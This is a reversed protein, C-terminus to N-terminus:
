PIRLRVLTCDDEFLGSASQTLVRGLLDDVTWNPSQATQAYLDVFRNLPWPKGDALTLEFAGDSYLLIETGPPVTYDRVEFRADEFVGVPISDAALRTLATGTALALAPPHGASSFRLRRSSAQYVGYWGTFYNGDHNEMQFLRNLETLVEDPELLTADDITGSRLLNHVSVSVMASEVGHGSVDVLYVILHDDDVWRYDYIDGGLERSPVYRSTVEVPGELYGPLISAVYSAASNIEAMLRNTQAQLLHALSRNQADRQDIQERAREEAAVEDDIVRFSAVVGDPSGEADYFPKAHLHAWHTIGGAGKVKTRGIVTGGRAITAMTNRYSALKEPAVIDTTPRGIWADAPAGLAEAVNNSVWTIVGDDRLRLVVDAVNDALLRFREESEHVRQEWEFRETVDRWTLSIWGPRVQAARVDYYRLDALLENHYPFADLIVPDGSEACHTYHALLGSGDINPLSDLLSHGLLENRSLGLYECTIRNVDRYVLDVVRGGQWVGELLVQPDLLADSSARILASAQNAADIAEAVPSNDYFAWIREGPGPKSVVGLHSPTGTFVWTSKIEGAPDLAVRAMESAVEDRNLARGALDEIVGSFEAATIRGAPVGLLRAAAHNVYALEGASDVSVLGVELEDLLDAQDTVM